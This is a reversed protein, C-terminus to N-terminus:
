IARASRSLPDAAGIAEQVQHVIHHISLHDRRSGSRTMALRAMM